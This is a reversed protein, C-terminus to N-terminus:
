LLDEMGNTAYRFRVYDFSGENFDNCLKSLGLRFDGCIPVCNETSDEWPNHRINLGFV